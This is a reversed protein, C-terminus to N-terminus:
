RQHPVSPAKAPSAPTPGGTILRAGRGRTLFSFAWRTLVLLRNQLGILYFIHVGLWTLWAPMGSIQIGKIEAVARARGVTALNGKDVYRFPESVPRGEARCRVTAAAYRGQQMAVSALGPLPTPNGAGDRVSVMDGLAIVEPRDQITLDPRVTVRGGRDLEAGGAAALTSALESAVVGASWVITRAPVRETGGDPRRVSVSHEDLDIVATDLLPTVGLRELARTAKTSLRPPFTALLRDSAEVLLIRASRSDASRLDRPLTDRALEAIQGAMEVGTPGGGVIVFTLWATRRESDPERDAAEFATFIRQRVAIASELSKIEHAFPRWDDHGFYSYRSGAAVILTDYAFTTDQEDDDLGEVVVHRADLDFARVEGMVVHVNHQRKLIVRLPAAIEEPALAGTAAQYLLPQFLHFNRRDILTVDVPAGRLSRVAQLGGFGGGVVVVRQPGRRASVDLAKREAPRAATAPRGSM